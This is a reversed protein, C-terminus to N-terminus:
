RLACLRLDVPMDARVSSPRSVGRGIEAPEHNSDRIACLVGARVLALDVTKRWRKPGRVLLYLHGKSPDESREGPATAM